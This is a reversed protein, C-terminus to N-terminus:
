AWHDGNRGTRRGGAESPPLVLSIVNIRYYLDSRFHGEEVLAQLDTSTGCIIRAKDSARARFWRLLRGQAVSGLQEVQDLFLTGGATAQMLGGPELLDTVSREVGFLAKQLSAEPLSGCTITIFPSAARPSLYHMARAVRERERGRVGRLLVPADSRAVRPLTARVPVLEGELAWRLGFRETLSGVVEEIQERTIGVVTGGTRM